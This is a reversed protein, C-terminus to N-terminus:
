RNELRLFENTFAKDVDIPQKLLNQSLLIDQIEEWIKKESYGISQSSEILPISAQLFREQHGRDLSNNIRLVEDIATEQNAIATEWGDISAEVFNRVVDSREKLMKETTFLTDAYFTLGYDRPKILNVEHGEQKLLIAENIEYLIQADFKDSTIQSIGAIVPVEQIKTSDVGTKSLLARYIVEEDRGYVVGVRKGELDNPSKINKKALSGVAVPSKRYIVALAVVPVGKERALIIQDAGTIGFDNAGTAVMQIPSIDPGGPFIEVDLGKKQYLGEGKAMYFGAFQAQDLWKLRLSVKETEKPKNLILFSSVGILCLTIIVGFIFFFKKM